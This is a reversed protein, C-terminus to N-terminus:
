SLLTKSYRTYFKNIKYDESNKEFGLIVYGKVAYTHMGKVEDIGQGQRQQILDYNIKVQQGDLVEFSEKNIHVNDKINKIHMKTIDEVFKPKDDLFHHTGNVFGEAQFNSSLFDFMHKSKKVVFEQSFQQSLDILQASNDQKFDVSECFSQSAGLLLAATLITKYM